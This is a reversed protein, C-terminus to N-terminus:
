KAQSPALAELAAMADDVINNENDKKTKKKTANTQQNDLRFAGDNPIALGPFKLAMKDSKNLEKLDKQTQKPRM